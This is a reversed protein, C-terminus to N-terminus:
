SGATRKLFRMRGSIFIPKSNTIGKEVLEDFNNTARTARWREEMAM